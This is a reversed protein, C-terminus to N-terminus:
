AKCTNWTAVLKGVPLQMWAYELPPLVRLPLCVCDGSRFDLYGPHLLIDAETVEAADAAHVRLIARRSLFLQRTAAGKKIHKKIFALCAHVLSGLQQLGCMCIGTKSCASNSVVPWADKCTPLEALGSQQLPIHRQLWAASLKSKLGWSSLVPGVLAPSSPVSHVVHLRMEKCFSSTPIPQVFDRPINLADAVPM